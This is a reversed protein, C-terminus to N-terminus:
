APGRAVVVADNEARLQDLTIDTGIRINNKMEVGLAAISAVEEDVIEKPLRYQPIGYRLMGGMHPMADYVTVAHGKRRLFNAATLGGPGGGIVAVRKGTNPACPPMYPDKSARDMDGAFSKLWAISIPEEVLQRRCAKECPHPCVRGISSPLPIRDKILRIAEKYEGNAIM